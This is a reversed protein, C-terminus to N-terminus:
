LYINVNCKIYKTTFYITIIMSIHLAKQLHKIKYFYRLQWFNSITYFLLLENMVLNYEKNYNCYTYKEYQANKM